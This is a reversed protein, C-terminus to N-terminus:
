AWIYGDYLVTERSLAFTIKFPCAFRRSCVGYTMYDPMGKIDDDFEKATVGWDKPDNPDSNQLDHLEAELEELTKNATFVAVM